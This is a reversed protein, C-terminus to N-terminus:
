PDEVVPLWRQGNPKLLKEDDAEGEDKDEEEEEEEDEQDTNIRESDSGKHEELPASPSHDSATAVDLSVTRVLTESNDIDWRVAM